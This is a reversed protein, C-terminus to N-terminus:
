YHQWVKCVVFMNAHIHRTQLTFQGSSFISICGLVCCTVHISSMVRTKGANRGPREYCSTFRQCSSKEATFNPMEHDSDLIPKTFHLTITLTLDNRLTIATHEYFREGINNLEKIYFLTRYNSFFVRLTVSARFALLFCSTSNQTKGRQAVTRSPSVQILHRLRAIRTQM